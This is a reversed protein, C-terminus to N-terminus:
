KGQQALAFKLTEAARDSDIVFSPRGRKLGFTLAEIPVAVVANRVPGYDIKLLAAEARTGDESFLIDAIKAFDKGKLTTVDRGAFSQASLIKGGSIDPPGKAISDYSSKVQKGTLNIGYGIDTGSLGTEQPTLFLDGSLSLRGMNATIGALFGGEMVFVDKVEGIAKGEADAVRGRLIDRTEVLTKGGNNFLELKEAFTLEKEEPKDMQSLIEDEGKDEVEKVYAPEESSSDSATYSGAQANLPFYALLGLLFYIRVTKKM